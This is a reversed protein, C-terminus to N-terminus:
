ARFRDVIRPLWETAKGALHAGGSTRAAESFVTEETDVVLIPVGRGAARAVIQRPLNTQGATGAVLLLSAEEVALLASRARFLEEDYLEDFWLVHPRTREGCRPCRLLALESEGLQRSRPWDLAIAEPMPVLADARRSACERRCRMYDLNGHIELTRPRSSGARLHLGDVNQTVLVFRDRLSAELAVLARHADNPAAKRCIGRRYLYWAWIADPIREFADRTALEEPQYNKSGVTWYGDGGRFTPIGSEASVGAGTLVVVKGEDDRAARELARLAQDSLATM